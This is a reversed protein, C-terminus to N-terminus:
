GYRKPIMEIRDSNADTQNEKPTNVLLNQTVNSSMTNYKM